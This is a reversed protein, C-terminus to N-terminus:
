STASTSNLKDQLIKNMDQLTKIVDLLSNAAGLAYNLENNNIHTQIKELIQFRNLKNEKGENDKFLLVPRIKQSEQERKISLEKTQQVVDPKNEPRGPIYAELLYDIDEMFFKKIDQEKIFDDITVNDAYNVTPCGINGLLQKKDFSNHNHSFCLIVQKPDLQFLPITYNKLFHKEEALAATEDYSTQELLERKFVFTAATGHYDRYPGFKIIQRDEPLHKFHMYLQTSGAILFSPHKLLANVGHSIRTPPYYDDDDMNILMEGTAKSHCLNRKTGLSMKEEFYFYKVNPIDKVLDGIPDTGDDVIIWEILNKPYTQNEICKITIPIFPRRNFTPTCISVTPLNKKSKNKKGM